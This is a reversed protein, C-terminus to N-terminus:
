NVAWYNIKWGDNYGVIVCNFVLHGLIDSLLAPNVTKLEMLADTTVGPNFQIANILYARQGEIDQRIYWGNKRKVIFLELALITLIGSFTVYSGCELL